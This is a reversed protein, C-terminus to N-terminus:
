CFQRLNYFKSVKPLVKIYGGGCDIHQEHKVSYQIILDKGENSFEQPFKASIQYFRADESTKLGKDEEADGYYKGASLVFKGATGDKEKNKSVVWNDL